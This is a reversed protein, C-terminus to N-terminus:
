HMVGTHIQRYLPKLLESYIDSLLFFFNKRELEIKNSNDCFDHYDEWRLTKVFLKSNNHLSPIGYGATGYWILGLRHSQNM